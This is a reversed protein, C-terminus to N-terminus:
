FEWRGGYKQRAAVWFSAATITAGPTMPWWIQGPQTVVVEQLTELAGAVVAESLKAWGATSGNDSIGGPPFANGLLHSGIQYIGKRLFVLGIKAIGDYVTNFFKGYQGDTTKESFSIPVTGFLEQDSFTGGGTLNVTVLEDPDLQPLFLDIVYSVTLRGLTTGATANPCALLFRGTDSARELYRAAVADTAGPAYPQTFLAGTAALRAPAITLTRNEMRKFTVAPDYNALLDFPYLMTYVDSPDFDFAMIITGGQTLAEASRWEYKLSRFQYKEFRSAIRNLWPFSEPDSPNCRWEHLAGSTNGNGPDIAITETHIVTTVKQYGRAPLGHNTKRLALTSLPREVYEV